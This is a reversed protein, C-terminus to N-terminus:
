VHYAHMRPMVYMVIIDEMAMEGMEGREGIGGLSSSIYHSTMNTNRAHFGINISFTAYAPKLQM